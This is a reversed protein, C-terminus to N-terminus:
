HGSAAAGFARTAESNYNELAEGFARLFGTVHLGNIEQGDRSTFAAEVSKLEEDSLKSGQAQHNNLDALETHVNENTYEYCDLLKEVLCKTYLIVSDQKTPSNHLSRLVGKTLEYSGEVAPLIYQNLLNLRFNVVDTDLNDGILNRGIHVETLKNDERGNYPLSVSFRLSNIDVIRVREEEEEHFNNDYRESATVGWALFCASDWYAQFKGEESFRWEEREMLDTLGYQTYVIKLM